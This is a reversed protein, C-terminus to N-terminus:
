ATLGAGEAVKFPTQTETTDLRPFNKLPKKFKILSKGMESTLTPEYSYGM